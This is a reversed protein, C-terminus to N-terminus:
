SDERKRIGLISASKKGKPPWDLAEKNALHGSHTNEPRVSKKPSGTNGQM